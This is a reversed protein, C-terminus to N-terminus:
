RRRRDKEYMVAMRSRHGVTACGSNWCVRCTEWRHCHGGSGGRWKRRRELPNSVKDPLKTISSHRLSGIPRKTCRDIHRQWHFPDYISKMSLIINSGCRKCRVDVPGLVEVNPDARLRQERLASRKASQSLRTAASFSSPESCLPYFSFGCLFRM